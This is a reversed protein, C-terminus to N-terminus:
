PRNGPDFEPWVSALGEHLGTTPRYGLERARSLDVEVARM